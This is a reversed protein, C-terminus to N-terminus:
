NIVKIVIKHGMKAHGDVTCVFYFTGVKDMFTVLTQSENEDKSIKISNKFKNNEYDIKNKLLFLNHHKTFDWWVISNKRVILMPYEKENYPIRWHIWVEVPTNAEGNNFDVIGKNNRYEVIQKNNTPFYKNQSMEFVEDIEFMAEHHPADGHLHPKKDNPMYYVTNTDDKWTDNSAPMLGPVSIHVGRTPSLKKANLPNKFVPTFIGKEIKSNISKGEDNERLKTDPKLNSLDIDMNHERLSNMNVYKLTEKNTANFDVKPAKGADYAQKWRLACLCWKDGAKLGPFSITPTSLDNGKSKTFKLFEDTMVACVTHTGKDEKILRCSGDRSYGTMPDTSCIQLPEDYLNLSKKNNVGGGVMNESNKKKIIKKIILAGLGAGLFLIVDDM